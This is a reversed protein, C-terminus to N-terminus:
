NQAHHNQKVKGAVHIPNYQHHIEQEFTRPDLVVDSVILFPTHLGLDLVVM